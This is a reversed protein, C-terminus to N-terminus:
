GPPWGFPRGGLLHVHLHFVSQQAHAGHNIVLRYGSEAIGMDRAVRAAVLLLHGLLREHAEDAEDVSKLWIRPIVLIHVPAQPHIDHFAIAQDDEYVIRAPLEGRLIKGFVTTNRTM